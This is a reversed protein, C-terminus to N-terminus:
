GVRQAIGSDLIPIWNMGKSHLDDIFEPLGKYRDQDYSFDKYDLLYDIDSWQTDLPLEFISYNAVVEKLTELTKYGWRCQHWGLAWQPILVPKGLLNHLQKAVDEPGQAGQMIYLDGVGGTAYFKVKVIGTKNDNKIWWDQANAVNAYVGFWSYSNTSGMLFPQVNYMNKGPPKQDQIPDSQDMAWLSYVGDKLFLQDSIQESLGMVGQYPYSSTLASAEIYNFYETLQFGEIRYVQAQASNSITITM